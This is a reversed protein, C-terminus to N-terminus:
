LCIFISWLAVMCLHHNIIRASNTSINAEQIMAETSVVDMKEEGETKEKMLCKDLAVSVFLGEYKAFRDKWL